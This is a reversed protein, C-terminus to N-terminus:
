TPLDRGLTIISDASHTESQSPAQVSRSIRVLPLAPAAIPSNTAWSEAGIEGKFYIDCNRMDSHLPIAPAQPLFSPAEPIDSLPLTIQRAAQWSAGQPFDPQFDSPSISSHGLQEFVQPLSMGGSGFLDMDFLCDQNQM